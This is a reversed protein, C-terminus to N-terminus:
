PRVIPDFPNSRAGGGRSEEQERCQHIGGAESHAVHLERAEDPRGQAIADESRQQEAREQGARKRTQEQDTVARGRPLLGKGVPREEGRPCYDEQEDSRETGHVCSLGTPGNCHLSTAVVSGKPICPPARPIVASESRADVACPERPRAPPQPSACNLASRMASTRSSAGPARDPRGTCRSRPETSRAKPRWKKSWRARDPTSAAWVRASRRPAAAPPIVSDIPMVNALSTKTESATSLGQRERSIRWSRSFMPSPNPRVGSCTDTCSRLPQRRVGCSKSSGGSVASSIWSETSTASDGAM